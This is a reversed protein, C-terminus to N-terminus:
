AFATSPSLCASNLLQAVLRRQGGDDVARRTVADYPLEIGLFRFVGCALDLGRGREFSTAMGDTGVVGPFECLVFRHGFFQSDFVVKLIGVVAPFPLIRWFVSKDLIVSSSTRIPNPVFEVVPFSFAPTPKEWGIGKCDITLPLQMQYKFTAIKFLVFNPLWDM